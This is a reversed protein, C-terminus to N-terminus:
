RLNMATSKIIRAQFDAQPICPRQNLRTRLAEGLDNKIKGVGEAWGSIEVGDLKVCSAPAGQIRAAHKGQM